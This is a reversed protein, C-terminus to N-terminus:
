LVEIPENWKFVVFGFNGNKRIRWIGNEWVPRFFAESYKSIIALLSIIIGTHCNVTM